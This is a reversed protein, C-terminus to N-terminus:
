SRTRRQRREDASLSAAEARAPAWGLLDGLALWSAGLRRAHRLAAARREVAAAAEAQAATVDRQAAVVADLAQQRPSSDSVVGLRGVDSCM